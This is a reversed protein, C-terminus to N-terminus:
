LQGPSNDAKRYQLPTFGTESKFVQCFYSVSSFGCKDSILSVPDKTEKLSGKALVIRTSLIYQMVTMGLQLKFQRCFYYKSVNIESCIRDLSLDQSINENIYRIAKGLFGVAADVSDTAYKNLFFVLHIACSLILTEDATGCPYCSAESFLRELCGGMEAPIRAYTVTKGFFGSTGEFNQLLEMIALYKSQSLILKSRIYETPEDPMTYHYTGPAILVLTHKEIPYTRDKTVLSGTGAHIYMFLARGSSHWTKYMPDKGTEKLILTDKMQM